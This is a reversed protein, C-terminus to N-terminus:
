TKKKPAPRDGTSFAALEVSGRFIPLCLFELV